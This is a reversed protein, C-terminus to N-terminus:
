EARNCWQGYGYHSNTQPMHKHKQSSYCSGINDDQFPRGQVFSSTQLVIKWGGAGEVTGLDGCIKGIVSKGRFEQFLAAGQVAVIAEYRGVSCLLLEYKCSSDLYVWPDAWSGELTWISRWGLVYIVVSSAKQVLPSVEKLLQQWQLPGATEASQLNLTVQTVQFPHFQQNATDWGVTIDFINSGVSSSVAMDGMGKRAVIVSTILDPISTGAALITLGM